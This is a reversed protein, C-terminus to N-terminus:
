VVFDNVLYKIVCGVIGGILLGFVDGFVENGGYIFIFVIGICFKCGKEIVFDFWILELLLNVCVECSILDFYNEDGICNRVFKGM